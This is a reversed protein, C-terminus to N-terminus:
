RAQIAHRSRIQQPRAARGKVGLSSPAGGAWHAIGQGLAPLLARGAGTLEYAVSLPPGDTVTRTVLGAGCLESLRESLMSDSIGDVARALVRFGAPGSSLTGLM